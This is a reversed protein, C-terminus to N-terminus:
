GYFKRREQERRLAEREAALELIRQRRALVEHSEQELQRAAPDPQWHHRAEWWAKIM